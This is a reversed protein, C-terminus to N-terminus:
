WRADWVYKEHAAAFHLYMGGKWSQPLNEKKWTSKNNKDFGINFSELWKLAENQYYAARDKPVAGKIVVFGDRFFEDRFDGYRPTSMDLPEIKGSPITSPPPTATRSPAM